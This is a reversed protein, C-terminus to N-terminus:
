SGPRGSTDLNSRCKLDPCTLKQVDKSALKSEIYGHLCSRCFSHGCAVLSYGQFAEVTELCISCDVPTERKVRKRKNNNNDNSSSSDHRRRKRSTSEILNVFSSDRTLDIANIVSTPSEVTLDILVSERPSRAAPKRDEM